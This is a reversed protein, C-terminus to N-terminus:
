SNQFGSIGFHDGRFGEDVLLHVTCKSFDFRIGYAEILKLEQHFAELIDTADGGSFADDAYELESESLPRTYKARAEAAWRARMLCFLLGMLSCGQPGRSSKEETSLHIPADYYYDMFRNSSPAWEVCDKLFQTPMMQHLAIKM